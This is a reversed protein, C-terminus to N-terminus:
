HPLRSQLLYGEFQAPPQGAFCREPGPLRASIRPDQRGRQAIWVLSSPPWSTQPGQTAREGWCAPSQPQLLLQWHLGEAM